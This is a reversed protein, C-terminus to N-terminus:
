PVALLLRRAHVARSSTMKPVYERGFLGLGCWDGEASCGSLYGM